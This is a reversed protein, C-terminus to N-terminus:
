ALAAWSFIMGAGSKVTAVVGNQLYSLLELRQTSQGKQM